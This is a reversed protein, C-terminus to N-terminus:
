HLKQLNNLFANYFAREQRYAEPDNNLNSNELLFLAKKTATIASAVTSGLFDNRQNTIFDQVKLTVMANIYTLKNYGEVGYGTVGVEQEARDWAFKVQETTNPGLANFGANIDMLNKTYDDPVEAPRSISFDKKLTTLIGYLKSFSEKRDEIKQVIITYEHNHMTPNFKWFDKSKYFELGAILEGIARDTAYIPNFGDASEYDDDSVLTANKVVTSIYMRRIDDKSIIEMGTLDAFLNYFDQKSINEVNYEAMLLKKQADTLRRNGKSEWNIPKEILISNFKGGILRAFKIDTLEEEVENKANDIHNENSFSSLKFLLSRNAMYSDFNQPAVNKSTKPAYSEKGKLIDM